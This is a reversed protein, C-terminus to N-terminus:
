VLDSSSDAPFCTAAPVDTITQASSVDTFTAVKEVQSLVDAVSMSSNKAAETTTYYQTVILSDVVPSLKNLMETCHNMKSSLTSLKKKNHNLIVNQIEDFTKCNKVLKRTELDISTDCCLKILFNRNTKINGQAHADYITREQETFDLLKVTNTIINGNFEDIISEKTNRRYLPMFQELINKNLEYFQSRQVTHYM